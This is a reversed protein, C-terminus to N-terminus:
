RQAYFPAGGKCTTWIPCEFSRTYICSGPFVTFHSKQLLVSEQQFDMVIYQQVIVLRLPIITHVPASRELKSSIIPMDYYWPLQERSSFIRM